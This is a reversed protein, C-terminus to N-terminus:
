PVFIAEWEPFSDNSPDAQPREVPPAALSWEGSAANYTAAGSWNWTVLMLTIFINENEDGKYPRFVLYTRFSDAMEVYNNPPALGTLCGGPNDSFSMKRLQNEYVDWLEDRVFRSGDLMYQGGTSSYVSSASRNILQTWAARAYYASTVKARFRMDWNPSPGVEFFLGNMGPDNTVEVLSVKSQPEYDDWQVDPRYVSIEGKGTVTACQGNKFRLDARFDVAGGPKNVYWCSTDWQRLLAAKVRYNESGYLEGYWRKKRWAENVFKGPLIWQPHTTQLTAADLPPELRAQFDV